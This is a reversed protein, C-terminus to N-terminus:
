KLRWPLWSKEYIGSRLLEAGDFAAYDGPGEYSLAAPLGEPEAATYILFGRSPDFPNQATTTLSLKGAFEVPRRDGSREAFVVRGRELRVPLGLRAYNRQLWENEGAAGVVVVTRGKLGAADARDGFVEMAGPWRTRLREAAASAEPSPHAPLLLAAPGAAALVAAVGGHFPPAPTKAAAEDLADLLRPYFEPLTGRPSRSEYEKLRDIMAGLYPMGFNRYKEPWRRAMERGTAGGRLELLRAGVAFAAHREVCARWTSECAGSIPAFLRDLSAIRAAYPASAGELAVRALETWLGGLRTNLRWGFRGRYIEPGYVSTLRPTGDPDATRMADALVPEAFPSIVLSYRAKVPLGLYAELQAVVDLDAAQARVQEVMPRRLDETEGYFAAFSSTRAFDSLMLRLEEVREGGGLQAALSQPMPSTWELAPPPGLRFMLEYFTLYSVGQRSLEAYREVAPHAAYPTFREQAEHDYPIDHRYFGGFRREAGALLQVMALLELRPDTRVELFAAAPGSPAAALGPAALLLLLAATRLRRSVLM